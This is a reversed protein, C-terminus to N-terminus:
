LRDACTSKVIENKVHEHARRDAVLDAPGQLPWKALFFQWNLHTAKEIGDINCKRRLGQM